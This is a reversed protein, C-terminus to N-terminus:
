QKPIFSVLNITFAGKWVSNVETEGHHEPNDSQALSVRTITSGFPTNELLLFFAYVKKFSGEVEAEVFLTEDVEASAVELFVGAASATEELSEFFRASEEEKVIFSALRQRDAETETLMKKQGSVVYLSTLEAETEQLQQSSNINKHKISLFLLAYVIAVIM